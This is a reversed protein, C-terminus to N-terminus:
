PSRVWGRSRLTDQEAELLEEWEGVQGWSQGRERKTILFREEAWELVDKTNGAYMREGPDANLSVEVLVSLEQSYGRRCLHRNLRYDGPMSALLRRRYEEALDEGIQVGDAAQVSELYEWVTQGTMMYLLVAGISWLDSAVGPPYHTYGVIEPAECAALTRHVKRVFAGAREQREEEDEDDLETIVRPLVVVRSLDGLLVPGYGPLRYGGVEETKRIYVNYPQISNHVTPQWGVVPKRSFSGACGTHLYNVATLLQIYVHWILPEPVLSEDGAEQRKIMHCAVSGDGPFQWEEEDLEEEATFFELIHRHQPIEVADWIAQLAKLDSKRLDSRQVVGTRDDVARLDIEEDESSDTDGPEEETDLLGNDKGDTKLEPVFSGPIHRPPSPVDQFLVPTSGDYPRPANLRPSRRLPAPHGEPQGQPSTHSESQQSRATKYSRGSDVSSTPSSSQSPM